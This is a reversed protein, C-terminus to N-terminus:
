VSKKDGQGLPIKEQEDESEQKQPKDSDRPKEWRKELRDLRRQLEKMQKQISDFMPGGPEFPPIQFNQYPKLKEIYSKLDDPM